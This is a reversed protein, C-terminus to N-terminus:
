NQVVREHWTVDYNLRIQCVAGDAGVTLTRTETGVTFPVRVSGSRNAMRADKSTGDWEAGFLKVDIRANSSLGRWLYTENAFNITTGNNRQFNEGLFTNYGKSSQTHSQKEGTLEIKYQFEGPDFNGLFDQDCSARVEIFRTVVDLDYVTTLQPGPDADPGALNDSCATLGAAPLLLSLLIRVTRVTSTAAASM